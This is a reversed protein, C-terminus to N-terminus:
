FHVVKKEKPTCDPTKWKWESEVNKIMPKHRTQARYHLIKEIQFDAKAKEYKNQMILRIDEEFHRSIMRIKPKNQVLNWEDIRLFRSPKYKKMGKRNELKETGKIKIEEIGKKEIEVSHNLFSVKPKKTKIEKLIELMKDNNALNPPIKKAIEPEIPALFTKKPPVSFIIKALPLSYRRADIIPQDIKKSSLKLDEPSECSTSLGSLHRIESKDSKQKIEM